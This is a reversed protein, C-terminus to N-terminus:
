IFIFHCFYKFQTVHNDNLVGKCACILTRTIFKFMRAQALCWYFHLKTKTIELYLVHETVSWATKRKSADHTMQNGFLLFLVKLFSIGNTKHMFIPTINICLFKLISGASDSHVKGAARITRTGDRQHRRWPERQVLSVPTIESMWFESLLAALM